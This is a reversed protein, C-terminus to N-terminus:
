TIPQLPQAMEGFWNFLCNYLTSNEKGIFRIYGDRYESKPLWSINNQKETSYYNCESINSKMSSSSSLGKAAESNLMTPYYIRLFCGDPEEESRETMIDMAGVEYKGNGQPLQKM